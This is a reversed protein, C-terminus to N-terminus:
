QARWAEVFALACAENYAKWALARAENYAKWAPAYAENYARLALARAEDYARLALACAEEYTKRAPANLLNRAAWHVDLGAEQAKRVNALTVSAGRPFLKRFV